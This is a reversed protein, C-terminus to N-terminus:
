EESYKTVYNQYRWTSEYQNDDLQLMLDLIRQDSSLETHTLTQLHLGYM